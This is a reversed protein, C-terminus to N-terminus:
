FAIREAAANMVSERQDTAGDQDLAMAALDRTVTKSAQWLHWSVWLYGPSFALLTYRLSEQGLLPRLWDSAVGVALPGFGIGVLNAFMSISAIAMARMGPPVLSQIMAYLPGNITTGGLTSLAMWALAVYYNHSFYIFAWFVSNFAANVIAAAKLQLRENNPARRSAWVGGLHQGVLGGVGYVVAFWTGLVGTNLGFSRVFFAPQWQMMGYAFFYFVALGYLLHRFTANTWLTVCVERLSPQHPAASRDAVIAPGPTSRRRPERVTLWALVALALGPLGVWAFMARWGYIENVWGAAFYALLTSLNTGQLYTAIARPRAARTFTDAILSQAPPICGAEGVGVGIRLLMLQLFNAALGCSAVMVSWVAATVAIITVRNGRDAWRAIPIGMVSYFLAFAIGTLLGLQSDSLALDTKINELVVGLAFRDAYNFTLIAMLIALLYGQYTGPQRVATTVRSQVM